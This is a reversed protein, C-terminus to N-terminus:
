DEEEKENVFRRLIKDFPIKVQMAELETIEGKPFTDLVNISNPAVGILYVKEGRALLIISKDRDVPIREIVKLNRGKVLTYSRVSIWKTVFFCGVLVLVFVIIYFLEPM